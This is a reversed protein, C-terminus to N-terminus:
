NKESSTTRLNRLAEQKVNYAALHQEWFLNKFRNEPDAKEKLEYFFDSGPFAQGFQQISDPILYPLIYSGGSNVAAAILERTWAEVTQQSEKSKEQQYIVRFSFSHASSGKLLGGHDQPLYSILVKFIDVDHRDFIDRMNFVFIEFRKVPILYEQMVMTSTTSNIFGSSRLNYSNELNRMVVTEKKYKFPDILNKQFRHLLASRSKWNALASEWWPEIENSQLRRADTVPKDTKRWSIDLLTEYNPPYFVAQHQVIDEDDLINDNFHQNFENYGLFKATRELAINDALELTAQVIVGLGGFGGIAGFFLANNKDRSAEYVKGDALVIRISRVSNIVPGAAVYNSHANVSLSGAVSYDNSGQMIKISLDYPDILQQIKQWSIGSQVTILKQEVDLELVEDFESLDLILSDPYRVNGGLSYHVGSVSIPGKTSVIADIIEQETLPKLTVSGNDVATGSVEDIVYSNLEVTNFQQNHQYFYATVGISVVILLLILKITIKLYAM